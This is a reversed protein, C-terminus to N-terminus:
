TSRDNEQRAASWAAAVCYNSWVMVAAGATGRVPRPTRGPVWRPVQYKTVPM